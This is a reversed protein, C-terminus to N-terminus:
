RKPRRRRRPGRIDCELHRPSSSSRPLLQRPPCCQVGAGQATCSDPRDSWDLEVQSGPSRRIRMEGNHVPPICLLLSFRTPESLTAPIALGLLCFQRASQRGERVSICKEIGQLFTCRLSFQRPPISRRRHVMELPQLGWSLIREVRAEVTEHRRERGLDGKGNSSKDDTAGTGPTAGLCRGGHQCSFPALHLVCGNRRRPLLQRQCCVGQGCPGICGVAPMRKLCYPSDRPLPEGGGGRVERRLRQAHEGVHVGARAPAGRLAAGRASGCLHQAPHDRRHRRHLSLAQAGRLPRQDEVPRRARAGGVRTKDRQGRRPQRRERGGRELGSVHGHSHVRQRAGARVHGPCQRPHGSNHRFHGRGVELDAGRGDGGARV